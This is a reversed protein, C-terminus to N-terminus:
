NTEGDQATDGDTTETEAGAQPNEHAVWLPPPLNKDGYTILRFSAVYQRTQGFGEGAPRLVLNTLATHPRMNFIDYTFKKIDAYSGRVNMSFAHAEVGAAIVGFNEEGTSLARYFEFSVLMNDMEGMNKKFSELAALVTNLDAQMAVIDSTFAEAFDTYSVAGRAQAIGIGDTELHDDQLTKHITRLYTTLVFEDAAPVLNRIMQMDQYQVQRIQPLIGKYDLLSELQGQIQESAAKAKEWKEIQKKYKPKVLIRYALMFVLCIVVVVGIKIAIKAYPNM